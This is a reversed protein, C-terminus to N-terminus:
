LSLYRFFNRVPQGPRFLKPQGIVNQGVVYDRPLSQDPALQPVPTTALTESVPAYFRYEMVPAPPGLPASESPAFSAGAGAVPAYVVTPMSEAMSPTMYSTSRYERPPSTVPIRAPSTCCASESLLIPQTRAAMQAQAVSQGSLLLWGCVLSVTFLTHM